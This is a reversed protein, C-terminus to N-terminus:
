NREARAAVLPAGIVVPFREVPLRLIWFTVTYTRAKDHIGKLPESMRLSGNLVWLKKRASDWVLRM